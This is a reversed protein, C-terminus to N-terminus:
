LTQWVALQGFAIHPILILYKGAFLAETLTYKALADFHCLVPSNKIYFLRLLCFIYVIWSYVLLAIFPSM